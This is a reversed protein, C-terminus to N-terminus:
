RPFCYSHYSLYFLWFFFFRQFSTHSCYFDIVGYVFDNNRQKKGKKGANSKSVDSSHKGTNELEMLLLADADGPNNKDYEEFDITERWRLPIVPFSGVPEKFCFLVAELLPKLLYYSFTNSSFFINSFGSESVATVGIEVMTDRLFVARATAEPVVETAGKSKKKDGKIKQRKAEEEAIIKELGKIAISASDTELDRSVPFSHFCHLVMQPGSESSRLGLELVKCFLLGDLPENPPIKLNEQFYSFIRERFSPSEIGAQLLFELFDERKIAYNNTPLAVSRIRGWVGEMFTNKWEKEIKVQHQVREEKSILRRSEYEHQWPLVPDANAASTLFSNYGGDWDDYKKKM